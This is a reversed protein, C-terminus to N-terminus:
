HRLDKNTKLAEYPISDAICGAIHVFPGEKGLSMGSSLMAIMGIVKSVFTRKSLMGPMEVGAMIARMQPIGSGKALDSIFQICGCAVAAFFLSTFLWILYTEKEKLKASNIMFVSVDVVLATLSAIASLCVLWFFLTGNLLRPM